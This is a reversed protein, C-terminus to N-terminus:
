QLLGFCYRIICLSVSFPFSIYETFLRNVVCLDIQVYFMVLKILDFNLYSNTKLFTVMKLNDLM